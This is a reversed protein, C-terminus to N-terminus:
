SARDSPGGLRPPEQSVVQPPVPGLGTGGEASGTKRGKHFLGRVYDFAVQEATREIRAHKRFVVGLGGMIAAGLVTAWAADDM